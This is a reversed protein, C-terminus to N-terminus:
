LAKATKANKCQFRSFISKLEKRVTKKLKRPLYSENKFNCLTKNKYQILTDFNQIKM